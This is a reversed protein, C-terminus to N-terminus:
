DVRKAIARFEYDGTGVLVFDVNNNKLTDDAVNNVVCMDVIDKYSKNAFNPLENFKGELILSELLSPTSLYFDVVKKVLLQKAEEVSLIMVNRNQM